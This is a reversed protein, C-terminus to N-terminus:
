GGRGSPAPGTVTAAGGGRRRRAARRPHPSSAAGAPARPNRRGPGPARGVQRDEDLRGTCAAVGEVMDEEDAWGAEALRRERLDDRALEADVEAGRRPGDDGLRPVKGREEGIELLAVDEEDVLDMAEVRRDLLDEIGGHLIELEVEDDAFPRGRAGDPDVEGLNVSTPAVVRAPRSVVGSRSRKPM